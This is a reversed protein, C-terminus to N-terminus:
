WKFHFLSLQFAASASQKAGATLVVIFHTYGVDRLAGHGRQGVIHRDSIKDLHQLVQAERAALGGRQADIAAHAVVQHPHQRLSSRHRVLCLRPAAQRSGVPLLRM